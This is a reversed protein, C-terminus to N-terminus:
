AARARPQKFYAEIRDLARVADFDFVESKGIRGPVVELVRKEDAESGNWLGLLLATPNTTRFARLRDEVPKATWGIKLRDFTVEPALAVCYVWGIASAPDADWRPELGEPLRRLNSFNEIFHGRGTRMDHPHVYCIAVTLPRHTATGGFDDPEMGEPWSRCGDAGCFCEHEEGDYWVLRLEDTLPDRSLVWGYGDVEPLLDFRLM